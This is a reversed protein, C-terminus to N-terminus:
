TMLCLFSVPLMIFLNPNRMIRKMLGPAPKVGEGETGLVTTYGANKCNDQFNKYTKENSYRTWIFWAVLGIVPFIIFCIRWHNDGLTNLLATIILGGIFTGWPYGTHHMAVFLGSREKPMWEMIMGVECSEGAGSAAGKIMHLVCFVAFTAAIFKFGCLLVAVLYFVALISARKARRYGVGGKNAWMTLPISFIGLAFLAASSLLGFQTATVNYEDIIYPSLRNLIERCNANMAYILWLLGLATWTQVPIKGKVSDMYIEKKTDHNFLITFYIDLLLFHSQRSM